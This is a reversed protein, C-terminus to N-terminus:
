LTGYHQAGAVLPCAAFFRICPPSAVLLNSQFRVDELADPVVQLVCCTPAAPVNKLQELFGGACGRRADSCAAKAGLGCVTCGHGAEAQGKGSPQWWRQVQGELGWRVSVEAQNALQAWAELAVAPDAQIAGGLARCAM